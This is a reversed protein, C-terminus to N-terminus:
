GDEILIFSNVFIEGFRKICKNLVNVHINLRMESMSIMEIM